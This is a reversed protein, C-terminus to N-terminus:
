GKVNELLNAKYLHLQEDGGLSYGEVVVHQYVIEVEISSSNRRVPYSGLVTGM